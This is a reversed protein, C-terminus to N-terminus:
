APGCDRCEFEGTTSNITVCDSCISPSQLYPTLWWLQAGGNGNFARPQISFIYDQWWVGSAWWTWGLWVDKNDRMFKLTGNVANRCVPNDAGAFETLYAKYSNQRLWSTVATLSTYTRTCNTDRGGAANVDFYQHITFAYNNASDVIRGRAFLDANTPASGLTWSWAGSWRTGPILILNTAGTARIAAIAKNVTATWGWTVEASGLDHPENTLEFIVLPNNKFLKATKTWFDAFADDLDPTIVKNYYRAYNHQDVIVRAGLDTIKSVSQTLRVTENVDLAAFASNQLREWLFPLRFLNMGLSNFYPAASVNYIYDKGYTGPINSGFDAGAINAGGLQAAASSFFCAFALILFKMM